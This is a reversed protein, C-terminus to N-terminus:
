YSAIPERNGSEDRQLNQCLKKSAHGYFSCIYLFYIYGYTVGSVPIIIKDKNHSRCSFQGEMLQRILQLKATNVVSVKQYHYPLFVLIYNQQKTPKKLIVKQNPNEKVGTFRALCFYDCCKYRVSGGLFSIFGASLNPIPHGPQMTSISVFPCFCQYGDQRCAGSL